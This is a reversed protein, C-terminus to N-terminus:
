KIYNDSRCRMKIGGNDYPIMEKESRRVNNKIGKAARKVIEGGM